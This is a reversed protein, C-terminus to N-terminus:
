LLYAARASLARPGGVSPIVHSCIFVEVIFWLDVFFVEFSELFFIEFCEVVILDRNINIVNVDRVDFNVDDTHDVVFVIVLVEGFLRNGLVFFVAKLVLKSVVFYLGREVLNEFFLEDDSVVVFVAAIGNVEIITAIRYTPDQGFLGVLKDAL